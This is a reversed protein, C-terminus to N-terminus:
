TNQKRLPAHVNLTDTFTEIFCTMYQNVNQINSYDAISNLNELLTENFTEANFQKTDRILDSTVKYNTAQLETSLLIPL